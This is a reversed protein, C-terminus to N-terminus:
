RIKLPLTENLDMKEVDFGCSFNITADNIPANLSLLGKGSQKIEKGRGRIEKNQTGDSPAKPHPIHFLLLLRERLLLEM